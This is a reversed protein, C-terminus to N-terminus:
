ILLDILCFINLLSIVIEAITAKIVDQSPKGDVVFSILRGLVVGFFIATAVAFSTFRFDPIVIGLLIFIGSVLMVAGVGRIENVLDTDNELKNDLNSLYTQLFNGKQPNILRM